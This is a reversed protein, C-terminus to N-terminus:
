LGKKVLLGDLVPPLIGANIWGHYLIMYPGPEYIFRWALNCLILGGLGGTNEDFCFLYPYHFRLQESRCLLDYVASINVYIVFDIKLNM